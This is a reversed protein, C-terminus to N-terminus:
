GMGLMGERIERMGLRVGWIGVKTEWTRRMGVGMGKMKRMGNGLEMNRGKCVAQYGHLILSIKDPSIYYRSLVM